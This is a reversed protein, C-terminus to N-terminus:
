GRVHLSLLSRLAFMMNGSEMQLMLHSGMARSIFRFGKRHSELDSGPVQVEHELMKQIKGVLSNGAGMWTSVSPRKKSHITM